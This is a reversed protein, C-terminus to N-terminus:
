SGIVIVSKPPTVIHPLLPPFDKASALRGCLSPDQGSPMTAQELAVELSFVIQTVGYSCYAPYHGIVSIFNIM